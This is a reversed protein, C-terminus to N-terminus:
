AGPRPPLTQFAPMGSPVVHFAAIEACHIAIEPTFLDPSDLTGVKVVVLGRDRLRTTLHTGCTPCFQRLRPNAIDSREFAAPTGQTFGYAAEPVIFFYNPGGGSIYQCPRCHCQARMVPAGDVAFRIAGCYCGGAAEIRESM